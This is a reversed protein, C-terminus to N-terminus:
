ALLILIHKKEKGNGGQLITDYFRKEMIGQPLLMFQNWGSVGKKEVLVM